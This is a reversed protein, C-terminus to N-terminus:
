KIIRRIKEYIPKLKNIKSVAIFGQKWPSNNIISKAESINLKCLNYIVKILLKNYESKVFKGVGFQENHNL